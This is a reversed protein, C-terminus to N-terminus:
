HYISKSCFQLCFYWNFTKLSHSLSTAWDHGVRQSGMSQLRGPEEMWPIKCALIKSHYGNKEGPSRGLGPILDLNGVKCASENGDSGGPFGWSCQSSSSSSLQKLRTRSQTVGYVAAWWAGGDRPNELCSCQFLNGDGEGICSLFLSLSIAWDHRVRHSGMSPLGGPEGTGPIRWALVSSHTAMGKELSDEWDLSQVWSKWMSPLNKVKQAM